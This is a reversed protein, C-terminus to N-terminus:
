IKAGITKYKQWKFPEDGRVKFYLTMNVMHTILLILGIAIAWGLERYHLHADFSYLSVGVVSTWISVLSVALFTSKKM